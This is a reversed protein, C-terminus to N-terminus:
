LKKERRVVVLEEEMEVIEEEGDMRGEGVKVMKKGLEALGEEAVVKGEEGERETKWLVM